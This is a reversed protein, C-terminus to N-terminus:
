AVGFEKGVEEATTHSVACDAGNRKHGHEGVRRKRREYVRGRVIEEPAKAAIVRVKHITDHSLNAAKALERDVHVQKGSNQFAAAADNSQAARINAEAAPRLFTELKLALEARVFPALNRRGFQNRIIWAAAIRETWVATDQFGLSWSGGPDILVALAEAYESSRTPEDLSTLDNRQGPERKMAELRRGAEHKEDGHESALKTAPPLEATHASVVSRVESEGVGVAEGIADFHQRSAPPQAFDPDIRKESLWGNVTRQPIGTKEEIERESLCDLWLDWAASKM